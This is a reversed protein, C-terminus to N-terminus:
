FLHLLSLSLYLFLLLTIGRDALGIGETRSTLMPEEELRQKLLAGLSVSGLIKFGCLGKGM